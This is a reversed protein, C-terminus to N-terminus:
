EGFRYRLGLLFASSGEGAGFLGFVGSRHHFRTALAWEPASPLAFDFEVLVFNLVQQAGEDAGRREDELTPTQSAVSPGMGFAFSTDVAHDWPFKEWRGIVAATWEVNSQRGFYRGVQTQLEVSLYDRWRYVGKGVEFTLLYADDVDFDFRAIDSTNDTSM